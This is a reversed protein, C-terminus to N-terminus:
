LLTNIRGYERELKEMDFVLMRIQMNGIHVNKATKESQEEPQSFIYRGILLEQRVAKESVSFSRGNDAWFRCVETYAAKPMVCLQKRERDVFGCVGEPLGSQPKGNTVKLKGSLISKVLGYCFMDAPEMHRSCDDSDMVVDLIARQWINLQNEIDQTPVLGNRAAYMSLLIEGTIELCAAADILRRSRIMPYHERKEPFKTRIYEVINNYNVAVFDLFFRIHTLYFLPYDQYFKLLAPDYTKKDVNIILLRQLSSASGHIYEGTVACVGHPTNEKRLQLDANGRGKGIGDGYYRILKELNGRMKSTEANLASPRFDDVLLVEDCTSGMKIELATMTDNFNAMSDNSDSKLINFFVKSVSTKLSGTMGCLFLVFRPPFGAEEFLSYLMGLHAFLFLPLTKAMNPSLLLMKMANFFAIDRNIQPSYELKKGSECITTSSENINDNIYIHFKQFYNTYEIWGSHHYIQQSASQKLQLSVSVSVYKDGRKFDPNVYLMPYAKRIVRAINDINEAPIKIQTIGPLEPSIILFEYSTETFDQYIHDMRCHPIICYNAIKEYSIEEQPEIDDKTKIYNTKKRCLSRNYFCLDNEGLDHKQGKFINKALEAAEDISFPQNGTDKKLQNALDRDINFRPNIYQPTLRDAGLYHDFSPIASINQTENNANFVAIQTYNDSNNFIINCNYDIYVKYKPNNQLLIQRCFRITFPYNDKDLIAPAPPQNMINTIYLPNGYIDNIHPASTNNSM